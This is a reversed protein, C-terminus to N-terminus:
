NKRESLPPGYQRRYEAEIAPLRREWEAKIFDDRQRKVNEQWSKTGRLYIKGDNGPVPTKTDDFVGETGFLRDEAHSHSPNFGIFIALLCFIIYIRRM